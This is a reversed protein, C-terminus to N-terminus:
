KERDTELARARASESSLDQLRVGALDDLATPVVPVLTRGEESMEKRGWVSSVHRTAWVSM